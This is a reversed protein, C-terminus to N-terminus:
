IICLPVSLIHLCHLFSKVSCFSRVGLQKTHAATHRIIHLEEEPACEKVTGDNFIVKM